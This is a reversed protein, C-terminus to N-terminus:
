VCSHCDPRRPYCNPSQASGPGVLSPKEYESTRNLKIKSIFQALFGASVTAHLWLAVM